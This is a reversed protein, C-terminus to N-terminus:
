VVMDITKIFHAIALLDHKSGWLKREIPSWMALFSGTGRQTHPLATFHARFNSSRDRMHITLIFLHMFKKASQELYNAM